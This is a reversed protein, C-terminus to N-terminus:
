PLGERRRWAWEAAFAAIAVVFLWWRDRLGVGTLRGSPSGPQPALVPAAPRWEDSYTDVAVVGREVGGADSAAYRYVGPALRLEARGGADFRLTDVRQRREANLSLVASRPDGAGTWRWLVATGNPTEYAVPHFREGSGAGEALLWDVLGAVLARYADGSAGGRFAWRYLGGAAIVARRAGARQSLTVMPRPPGRRALRAVLAVTTSSDPALEALSTAPPLSDWAVGALAGALPSPGTSPPPPQVYWDGDLRRTGPWLLVAGKPGFRNFTPADGAEIVLAAGAVARAVDGPARSELTTADRWRNGGPEAEIFTRVPVRAVDELTRALFRTEWDPPAALLVVSPQPSVELVFLRVDDRPESDAVGELRVELASWGAPLSGPVAQSSGPFPSLPLTLETSVVGSDPLAVDRSALRRGSLSVVLKARGGEGKRPRKGATGYSVKLRVTDGAAVRRPGDVSAIFADFFPARPLVVIRARRLLDPPIDALDAIAGDSVVTVPGGRAAAADLAPALRSAGDTPPLTDFGAVREGFRWIIGGAALARATDLADRWRGGHGAMSLSADLLVLPPAGGAEVRAATPNWVLLVLAGLAAARLAALGLTV